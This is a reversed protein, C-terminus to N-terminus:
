GCRCCHNRSFLRHTKIM